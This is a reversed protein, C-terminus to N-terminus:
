VKMRYHLEKKSLANNGDIEHRDYPLPNVNLLYANIDAIPHQRYDKTRENNKIHGAKIEKRLHELAMKVIVEQRQEFDLEYLQHRNSINPMDLRLDEISSQTSNKEKFSKLFKETSKDELHDRLTNVYEAAEPWKEYKSILKEIEARSM